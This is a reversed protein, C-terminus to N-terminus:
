PICQGKVIWRYRALERTHSSNDSDSKKSKQSKKYIERKEHLKERKESDDLKKPSSPKKQRRLTQFFMYDGGSDFLYPIDGYACRIKEIPPPNELLNNLVNIKVNGLFSDDDSELLEDLGIAKELDLGSNTINNLKFKIGDIVVSVKKLKVSSKFAMRDLSQRKNPSNEYIVGKVVYEISNYDARNIQEYEMHYVIKLEKNSVSKIQFMYHQDNLGVVFPINQLVQRNKYIKTKM